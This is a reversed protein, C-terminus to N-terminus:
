KSRRFSIKPQITHAAIYDDIDQQRFLPRNSLRTCRIKRAKVLRSVSKTSKFSLLSAVQKISLYGTGNIKKVVDM